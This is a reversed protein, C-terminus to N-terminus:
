IAFISWINIKLAKIKKQLLFYDLYFNLTNSSGTFEENKVNNYKRFETLLLCNKLKEYENWGILIAWDCPTM